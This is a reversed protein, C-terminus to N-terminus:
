WPIRSGDINVFQGGEGERTSNDIIEVLKTSAVEVPMGMQGFM